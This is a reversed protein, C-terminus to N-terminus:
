NVLLSRENLFEKIQEAIFKHGKANFHHSYKFTLDSSNLKQEFFKQLSLYIIEERSLFGEFSRLLNWFNPDIEFEQKLSEFEPLIVVVFKIRRNKLEKNLFDFFKKTNELDFEENSSETDNNSHNSNFIQASMKLIEPGIFRCFHCHGRLFSLFPLDRTFSRSRKAFCTKSGKIVNNDELWYRGKNNNKIDHLFDMAVVVLDPDMQYGYKTLFKSQHGTGYGYVGCNLVEFKFKSSYTNLKQEIIESFINNLKVGWGFTHSDGLMLIRYTSDDKMESYDRDRLGLANTKLKISFERSNQVGITNNKFRHCLDGDFAIIDSILDQPAWIRVALEALLLLFLFVALVTILWKTKIKM